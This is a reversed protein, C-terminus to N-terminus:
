EGAAGNDREIVDHADEDKFMLVTGLLQESNVLPLFDRAKGGANCIVHADGLNVRWAAAPEPQAEM